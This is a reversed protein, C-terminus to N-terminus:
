LNVLSDLGEPLPICYRIPKISGDKNCIREVRKKKIVSHEIEIDKEIYSGFIYTIGKILVNDEITVPFENSGTIRVGSEINVNNGITMNGRIVTGTLLNCNKGIIIKQGPYTNMSCGSGIYTGEDIFVHGEIRANSDINVGKKIHVDQGLYAGRGIVIDKAEGNNDLEIIRQVVDDAIFFDDGDVITIIDKLLDYVQQQAITQMTYLVSKNNFGMIATNNTAPSIGVKYGTENFISVLDTLYMESQINHTNIKSINEMLPTKKFAYVGANFEPIELLEQRSLNFSHGKHHFTHGTSHNVNLIDKFEMIAIVEGTFSSTNGTIDREPVRIVRGYYNDEPIGTYHGTLIIMDYDSKLFDSKIQKVVSSRILGMDGPFIYVSDIHDANKMQELAIKTAHGTGQPNEQYAFITNDHHGITEIIEEAQIGVVIIQNQSDLGAKVAEAVRTVSPKGWIHHLMKSRESKIRKGFGAALVISLSTDNQCFSGNFKKIYQLINKEM